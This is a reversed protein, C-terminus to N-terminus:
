AVGLVRSEFFSVNEQLVLKTDTENNRPNLGLFYGPFAIVM